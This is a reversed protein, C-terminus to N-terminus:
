WVAAISATGIVDNFVGGFSAGPAAAIVKKPAHSIYDHAELRFRVHKKLNIKFGAGVDGVGLSERTHTLAVFNGLPQTASEAGTGQIFKVGGGFAFFPRVRTGAPRFHVLIDGTLIHTHGSFSASAGGSSVQPDSFRYLYRAEGGLYRGSDEGGYVGIVGGNKFGASASSSGRTVNFQPSYAFGGIAGVEWGQGFAASATALAAMLLLKKRNQGKWSESKWSM